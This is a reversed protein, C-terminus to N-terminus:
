INYKNSMYDLYVQDWTRKTLEKSHYWSKTDKDYFYKDTEFCWQAFKVDPYIKKDETYKKIKM